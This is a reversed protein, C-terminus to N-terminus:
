VVSRITGFSKRILYAADVKFRQTSSRGSGHHAVKLVDAKLLVKNTLMMKESMEEADGTFLFSNKGYDIRLVISMDNEVWANPWCHLITVTAGGLSFTDGDNPVVIPIGQAEAYKAM